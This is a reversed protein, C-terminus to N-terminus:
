GCAGGAGGVHEFEVADDIPVESPGRHSPIASKLVADVTGDLARCAFQSDKRIIERLDAEADNTSGPNWGAPLANCLDSFHGQAVTYSGSRGRKQSKWSNATQHSFFM